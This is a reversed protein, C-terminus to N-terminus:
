SGLLNGSKHATKRKKTFYLIIGIIGFIYGIGGFVESFSIKKEQQSKALERIVPRLKEELSQDIIEKIKQLDIQQESINDSKVAPKEESPSQSQTTLAHSRM